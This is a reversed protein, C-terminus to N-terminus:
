PHAHVQTIPVAITPFSGNTVTVHRRRYWYFGVLLCVGLGGMTGGVILGVPPASSVSADPPPALAGVGAQTIGMSWGDGSLTPQTSVAQQGLAAAAASPYTVQVTFSAALLRRGVTTRVVLM